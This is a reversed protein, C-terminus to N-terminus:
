FRRFEVLTEHKVYAVGVDGAVLLGLVRGLTRYEHREGEANELTVYYTTTTGSDSGSSATHTRTTLVHRAAAIIPAKAYRRAAVLGRFTLGSFLLSMVLWLLLSSAGVFLMIALGVFLFVLSMVFAFGAAVEYLATGVKPQYAIAEAYREDAEVAALRDRVSPREDGM